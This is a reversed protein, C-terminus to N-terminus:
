RPKQRPARLLAVGGGLVILAVLAWVGPAALAGAAELPSEADTSEGVVGPTPKEAGREAPLQQADDSGTAGAGVAGLSYEDTAAPAALAPVPIALLALLLALTAFRAGPRKTSEMRRAM